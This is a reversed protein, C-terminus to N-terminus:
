YMADPKAIYLSLLGMKGFGHGIEHAVVKWEDRAITTQIILGLTRFMFIYFLRSKSIASVGAGSVFQKKGDSNIQATAETNCLQKLWALGVEVGTSYLVILGQYVLGCILVNYKRM